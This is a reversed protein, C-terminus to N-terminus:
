PPLWPSPSPFGVEGETGVERGARGGDRGGAGRGARRWKKSAEEERGRYSERM